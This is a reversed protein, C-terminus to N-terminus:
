DIDCIIRSRKFVRLAVTFVLLDIILIVALVPLAMEWSFDMKILGSMVPLGIVLYFVSSLLQATKLTEVKLSIYVGTGVAFLVLGAGHLIFSFMAPASYLFPQIWEGNMYIVYNLTLIGCLIIFIYTIYSFVFGALAKGLFLDIDTIEYQWDKKKGAGRDGAFSGTTCAYTIMLPVFILHLSLLQTEKMWFEAQSMPIFVGFMVIFVIWGFAQKRTSRSSIIEWLEARAVEFIGNM